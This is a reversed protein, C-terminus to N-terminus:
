SVQERPSVVILFLPYPETDPAICQRGLSHPHRAISYASRSCRRGAAHRVLRCAWYLCTSDSGAAHRRHTPPRNSAESQQFQQNHHDDDAQKGAVDSRLEETLDALRLDLRCTRLNIRQLLREVLVPEVNPTIWACILAKSHKDMPWRVFWAPCAWVQALAEGLIRPVLVVLVSRGALM